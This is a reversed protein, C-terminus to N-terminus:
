KFISRCKWHEGIYVQVNIVTARFINRLYTTLSLDSAFTYPTIRNAIRLTPFFNLFRSIYFNRSIQQLFCVSRWLRLNFQRTGASNDIM